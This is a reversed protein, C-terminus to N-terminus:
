IEIKSFLYAGAILFVAGICSMVGIDLAYNFHWHGILSGRLGDVGYSLPNIRTLATLILPLHDLPYFAGSLFVMPMVMFNAVVNFSQMDKLTSGIIMGLAAFCTAIMAVFVFGSLIASFHQPRFGTAMCLLLILVGQVVGVTAGGLTRGIMISLRPVPAVLTEKLSGFQRDWLVTAGSFAASILVTMGIMGPALFQMYSGQGAKEFVPNFGFGLALLFFAPQVISGVVQVPSRLFRKLERLWLIYIVNM